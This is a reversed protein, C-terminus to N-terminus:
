KSSKAGFSSQNGTRRGRAGALWACVDPHVPFSSFSTFSSFSSFKDAGGWVGGLLHSTCTSCPQVVGRRHIHSRGGGRAHGPTMICSSEWQSSKLDNAVGADDLVSVTGTAKILARPELLLSIVQEEAGLGQWGLM